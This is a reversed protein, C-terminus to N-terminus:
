TQKDTQERPFPYRWIPGHDWVEGMGSERRESHMSRRVMGPVWGRVDEFKNLMCRM